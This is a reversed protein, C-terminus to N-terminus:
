IEIHNVQQLAKGETKCKQRSRSMQVKSRRNLLIYVWVGCGWGGMGGVGGVWVIEKFSNFFINHFEVCKKVKVLVLIQDLAM